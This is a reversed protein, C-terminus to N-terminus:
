ALFFAPNFSQSSFPSRGTDASPPDGWDEWSLPFVTGGQIRNPPLCFSFPVGGKLFLPGAGRLTTGTLGRLHLPPSLFSVPSSPFLRNEGDLFVDGPPFPPPRARRSFFSFSPACSPFFVPIVTPLPSFAIAWRPSPFFFLVRSVRVKFFVPPEPLFVSFLRRCVTGIHFFCSGRRGDPFFPLHGDYIGPLSFFCFRPLFFTPSFCNVPGQAPPPDGLRRSSFLGGTCDRSLVCLWFFLSLFSDAPPMFCCLFFHSSGDIAPFFFSLVVFFCFIRLYRNCAFLFFFSFLRSRRIQVLPFFSFLSFCPLSSMMSRFFPPARRRVGSFFFDRLAVRELLPPFPFLSSCFGSFPGLRLVCPLFLVREECTPPPFFFPSFTLFPFFPFTEAPGDRGPPFLGHEWRRPGCLFPILTTTRSLQPFFFCVPFPHPSSGARGRWRPLFSRDLRHL